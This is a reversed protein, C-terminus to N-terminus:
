NQGTSVSAATPSRPRPRATKWRHDPASRLFLLPWARPRPSPSCALHACHSEAHSHTWSRSHFWPWPRRAGRPRSSACTKAIALLSPDPQWREPLRLARQTAAVMAVSEPQTTGCFITVFPLRTSPRSRCSGRILRGITSSRPLHRQHPEHLPTLPGPVIRTVLLEPISTRLRYQSRYSALILSRFFHQNVRVKTIAQRDLGLVDEWEVTPSQRLETSMVRAYAEEAALAISEPDALFDAFVERDLRSVNKLGGVGRKQHSPDLSALNCCKMGVSGPTRGLKAAVEVIEPNADDLQGFPTRCYLNFAVLTEDRTWLKGAM